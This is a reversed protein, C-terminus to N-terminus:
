PFMGSGYVEALSVVAHNKHNWIPEETAARCCYPYFDLVYFICINTAAAILTFDLVYFIPINPEAAFILTFDLMYFIPINREAAARLRM